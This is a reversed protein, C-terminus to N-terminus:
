EEKHAEDDEYLRTELDVNTGSLNLYGEDGEEIEREENRRELEASLQAKKYQDYPPELPELEGDEDDDQAGALGEPTFLDPPHVAEAEARRKELLDELQEITLNDTNADGTNARDEVLLTDHSLLKRQEGEEMYSLPLEARQALYLVDDDDWSDPDSMDIERAM